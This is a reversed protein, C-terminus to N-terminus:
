GWLYSLLITPKKKGEVAGIFGLAYCIPRVLGLNRSDLRDAKCSPM